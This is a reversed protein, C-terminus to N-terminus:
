VCKDYMAYTHRRNTVRLPVDYSHRATTFSDFVILMLLVVSRVNHRKYKRSIHMIERLVNELILKTFTLCNVCLSRTLAFDSCSFDSFSILCLCKEAITERIPLAHFSPHRVHIINWRSVINGHFENRATERGSSVCCDNARLVPFKRNNAGIIGDIANCGTIEVSQLSPFFLFSCYKDPTNGLDITAIKKQSIAFRFYSSAIARNHLKWALIISNWDDTYM